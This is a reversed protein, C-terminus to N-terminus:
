KIIIQEQVNYINANHFEVKKFIQKLLNVCEINFQILLNWFEQIKLMLENSSYNSICACQISNIDFQM